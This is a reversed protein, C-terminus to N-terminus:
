VSRLMPSKTDTTIRFCRGAFSGVHTHTHAGTCIGVFTYTYALRHMHIPTRIRTHARTLALTRWTHVGADEPLLWIGRGWSGGRPPRGGHKQLLHRQYWVPDPVARQRQLADRAAQSPPAGRAPEQPGHGALLHQSEVQFLWSTFDAQLPIARPKTKLKLWHSPHLELNNIPLRSLCRVHPSLKKAKQEKEM